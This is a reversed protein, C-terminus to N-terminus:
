VPRPNLYYRSAQLGPAGLYKGSYGVSSPTDLRTLELQAIGMGPWLMIANPSQNFLELTICGNFGPDIFGASHIILGFRAVSSKGEVKGRVENNLAVAESTSALVFQQPFLIFYGDEGAGEPEGFAAKMDEESYPDLGWDSPMQIARIFERGLHLDISAPQIHEFLTALPDDTNFQGTRFADRIDIDSLTM